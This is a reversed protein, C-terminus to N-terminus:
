LWFLPSPRVVWFVSRLKDSMSKWFGEKIDWLDPSLFRLAQTLSGSSHYLLRDDVTRSAGRSELCQYQLYSFPTLPSALCFFFLVLVLSVHLLGIRIIDGSDPFRGTEPSSFAHIVQAEKEKNEMNVRLFLAVRLGERERGNGDGPIAFFLLQRQTVPVQTTEFPALAETGEESSCHYENRDEGDAPIWVMDPMTFKYFQVPLGTTEALLAFFFLM